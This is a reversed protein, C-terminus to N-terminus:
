RNAKESDANPRTERSDCHLPVVNELYKLIIQGYDYM